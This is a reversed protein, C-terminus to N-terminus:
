QPTKQWCICSYCYFSDVPPRLRKKQCFIAEFNSSHSFIFVWPEYSKWYLITSKPSFPGVKPWFPGLKQNNRKARISLAFTRRGVFLDFKRQLPHRVTADKKLLTQNRIYGPTRWPNSCRAVGRRTRSSRARFPKRPGRPRCPCHLPGMCPSTQDTFILLFM